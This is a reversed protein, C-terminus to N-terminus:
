GKNLPNWSPSNGDKRKGPEGHLHSRTGFYLPPCNLAPNNRNADTDLCGIPNWRPECDKDEQWEMLDRGSSTKFCGDYYCGTYTTVRNAKWGKMKAIDENFGKVFPVSVYDPVSSEAFDECFYTNKETNRDWELKVKLVLQTPGGNTPFVIMARNAVSCFKMSRSGGSTGKFSAERCNKPVETMKQYARAMM